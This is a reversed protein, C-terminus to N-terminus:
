FHELDNFTYHVDQKNIVVPINLEIPERLQDSLIRVTISTLNQPPRVLYVCDTTLTEGSQIKGMRFVATHLERETTISVGCRSLNIPTVRKMADLISSKRKPRDLIQREELLQLDNAIPITLYIRVDDAFNTGSNTLQLRFGSIGELQQIYQALERYYAQNTHAMDYSAGTDFMGYPTRKEMLDPLEDQNEIIVNNYNLYLSDLNTDDSGLLQLSLNPSFTQSKEVRDAGMKAIEEPKAIATSSGRRVYVTDALVKGFAQKAYIPRDQTDITYLGLQFGKFTLSRYSFHVPTNTKGNIFQQLRADDLDIDLGVLEGLDSVGVLIHADEQRWANAFALVDKLLEGKAEPTAGDHPYQQVKYDLTTGEGKYLLTEILSQDDMKM